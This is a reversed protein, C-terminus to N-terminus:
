RVLEPLVVVFVAAAFVGLIVGGVGHGLDHSSAEDGVLPVIYGAVIGGGTGAGQQHVEGVSDAFFLAAEVRLVNGLLGGAQEPEVEDQIIEDVRDGVDNLTVGDLVRLVLFVAGEFLEIVDDGIWGEFEVKGAWYQSDFTFLGLKM